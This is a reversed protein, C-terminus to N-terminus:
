FISLKKLVINSFFDNQHKTWYIECLDNRALGMNVFSPSLRTSDAKPYTDTNSVRVRTGFAQMLRWVFVEHYLTKLTVTRLCLPYIVSELNMARLPNESSIEDAMLDFSAQYHLYNARTEYHIQRYTVVFETRSSYNLHTSM